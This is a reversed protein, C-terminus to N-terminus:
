LDYRRILVTCEGDSYHSIIGGSEIKYCENKLFKEQPSMSGCGGLLFSNKEHESYVKCVTCTGEIAISLGWVKEAKRRVM